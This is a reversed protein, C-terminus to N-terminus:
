QFKKKTCIITRNHVYLWVNISSIKSEHISIKLSNLGYQVNFNMKASEEDVGINWMQKGKEVKHMKYLRWFKTDISPNRANIIDFVEGFNPTPFTLNISARVMKPPTGAEITKIKAEPWEKFKLTPITSIVWELTENNLSIARYLGREYGCHEFDIVGVKDSAFLAATLEEAILKGQDSNLATDEDDGKIVDVVFLTKQVVENCKLPAMPNLLRRKTEQKLPPSDNKRKPTRAVIGTIGQVKLKQLHEAINTFEKDKESDEKLLKDESSENTNSGMGKHITLKNRNNVLFSVSPTTSNGSYILKTMMNRRNVTLAFLKRTVQQVPTLKWMLQHLRFSKNLRSVNIPSKPVKLLLQSKLHINSVLDIGTVTSRQITLQFRTSQYELTAPSGTLISKNLKLSERITGPISWFTTIINAVQLEKHLPSRKIFISNRSVVNIVQASRLDIVTSYYCIRLETLKNSNLYVLLKYKM